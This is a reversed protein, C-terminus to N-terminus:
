VHIHMSGFRTNSKSRLLDRVASFVDLSHYEMIKRYLDMLSQVTIIGALPYSTKIKARRVLQDGEAM